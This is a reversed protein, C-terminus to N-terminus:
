GVDDAGALAHGLQDGGQQVGIGDLLALERRVELSAVEAGEGNADLGYPEITSAWVSGYFGSASHWATVGGQVVPDEGSLSVGRYRYDSVAGIKAEVSWSSPAEQASALHPVLLALAAASLVAYRFM